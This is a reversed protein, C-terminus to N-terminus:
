PPGLAAVDRYLAVFRRASEAWTFKGAQAIGRARRDSWREPEDRRERLLRAIAATWEAIDGVPCYTAAEGGSERLAPIDSAVVATGCAMAELVPFGFGERESPLLLVAARRYVAALAAQDLFPLLVTSNQLGLDDVIRRQGADFTGGVRVLCAGPWEKRVAAFVGLLVDIRKRPITSGVHLIDIRDASVPGLRGEIEADRTADPDPSCAPHVGLPVVTVREPRAWGGALLEDRTATSDCTVRSAQRLGALLRGSLLQLARSRLDGARELLLRFPDVDHCTVITRGAPLERALHAYSHDVVHFLDFEHARRRLWRPYDWYRNWLRDGINPSGRLGPLRGLRTVVAPRVREADVERSHATALQVALMEAMLDMSPWRKAALDCVLALHPRRGEAGTMSFGENM